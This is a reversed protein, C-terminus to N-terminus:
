RTKRVYEQLLLYLLGGVTGTSTVSAIFKGYPLLPAAKGVKYTLGIRESVEYRQLISERLRFQGIMFPVQVFVFTSAFLVLVVYYVHISLGALMLTTFVLLAAVVVNHASNLLYLKRLRTGFDCSELDVSQNKLKPVLVKVIAGSAGYLFRPRDESEEILALSATPGPEVLASSM